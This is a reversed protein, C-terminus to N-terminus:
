RVKSPIERLPSAMWRTAHHMTTRCVYPLIVYAQLNAYFGIVLHSTGPQKPLSQPVATGSSVIHVHLCTKRTPKWILLLCIAVLGPVTVASSRAAIKAAHSRKM